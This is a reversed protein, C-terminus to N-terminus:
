PIKELETYLEDSFKEGDFILENGDYCKMIAIKYPASRLITGNTPGCYYHSMTSFVSGVGEIWYDYWLFETGEPYNPYYHEYVGIKVARRLKGCVNVVGRSEPVTIGARCLGTQARSDINLDINMKFSQGLVEHIGYIPIEGYDDSLRYVTGDKEKMVGYIGQSYPCLLKDCKVIKAIENEVITDGAVFVNIYYNGIGYEYFYPLYVWRKGDTYIPRIEDTLPEPDVEDQGDNQESDGSNTPQEVPDIQLSIDENDPDCSVVFLAILAITFCHLLEIKKM